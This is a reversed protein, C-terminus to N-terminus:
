CKSKQLLQDLDINDDSVVQWGSFAFSHKPSKSSLSTKKHALIDGPTLAPDLMFRM